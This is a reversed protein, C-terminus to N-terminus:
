EEEAQMVDEQDEPEQKRISHAIGRLSEYDPLDNIQSIGLHRVFDITPSYLYANARKEDVNREILGRLLLQRLIFSSNVGRIFDIEMRSIPAGYAIIALTESAAPTLSDHLDTKILEDLMGSFEGRTVLQLNDNNIVLSLGRGSVNLAQRLSEAAEKVRSEKAKLFKSAKKIELPDGYLFLLAELAPALDDAVFHIEKQDKDKFLGM